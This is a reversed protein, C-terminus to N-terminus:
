ENYLVKEGLLRALNKQVSVQHPIDLETYLNDKIYNLLKRSDQGRGIHWSTIAKQFLPGYTAPYNLKQQYIDNKAPKTTALDAYFYADMWDQNYEHLRSLYYYAEPRDPLLHIAHKYLTMVSHKRNGPIEYCRACRVLCYYQLDKDTSLEATKLYFTQAIAYQKKDFYEEAIDFRNNITPNYVFSYLLERIRSM